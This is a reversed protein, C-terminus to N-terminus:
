IIKNLKNNKDSLIEKTVKTKQESLKGALRIDRGISGGIGIGCAGIIRRNKLFFYIIGEKFDNGRQAITEYDNCLGTMQLNLEFQDSWMWPIASYSTKRGLINKGANIGHNQAHKFSELRIHMNYFPHYFNSVDGAAFVDKISTESYENTVIGNDIKLESDKFTNTNPLSGVGIVLLDTIFKKETDLIVEYSNGIKKIEKIQVNLYIKTGNEEHKDQVLKAVQEPIVRGMLQNGRELITVEKGLQSSSSAIELGIFGGGIILINKSSELKKKIAKSEESNRLYILNDDPMIDKENLKLKRNGAGTAILLKDYTFIKKNECRIKKENFDVEKIKTNLIVKIKNDYYFSEPFFLCQEISMKNLLYDKSLPPREYPLTQEDSIITLESSADINRIEKAAYAASQGGGIIIIHKKKNM